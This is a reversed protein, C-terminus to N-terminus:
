IDELVEDWTPPLDEDGRAQAAQYDEEDIVGNDNSDLDAPVDAWGAEEADEEDMDEGDASEDFDPDELDGDAAEDFYLAEGATVVMRFSGNPNLALEWERGDDNPGGQSIWTGHLPHPDDAASAQALVPLVLLVVLLSIKRRLGNAQAVGSLRYGLDPKQIQSYDM